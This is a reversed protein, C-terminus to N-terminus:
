NIDPLKYEIHEQLSDLLQGVERVSGDRLPRDPKWYGDNNKVASAFSRADRSWPGFWARASYSGRPDIDYLVCYEKWIKVLLEDIPAPIQNNCRARLAKIARAYTFRLWRAAQQQRTRYRRRLFGRSKFDEDAIDRIYSEPKLVPRGVSAVDRRLAEIIPSERPEEVLSAFAPWFDFKRAEKRFTQREPM